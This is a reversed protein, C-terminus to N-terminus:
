KVVSCNHDPDFICSAGESWTSKSQKASETKAEVHAAANLSENQIVPRIGLRKSRCM